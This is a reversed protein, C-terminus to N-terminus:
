ENPRAGICIGRPDPQGGAKLCTDIMELRVMKAGSYLGAGFLTAYIILRIM